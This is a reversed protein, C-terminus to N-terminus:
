LSMCYNWFLSCLSLDVTCWWKIWSYCRKGAKKEGKEQPREQRKNFYAHVRETRGERISVNPLITYWCAMQLGANYISDNGIFCKLMTRKGCASCFPKYNLSCSRWLIFFCRGILATLQTYLMLTVALRNYLNTDMVPESGYIISVSINEGQSSFLFLAKSQLDLLRETLFM